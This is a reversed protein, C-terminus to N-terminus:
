TLAGKCREYLELDILEQVLDEQSPDALTQRVADVLFEAFKARAFHLRNRVWDAKVPKGLIETLLKALQTSDAQSHDMRCRLITYLPLNKPQAEWSELASWARALLEAKWLDAFEREADACNADLLTAAQEPTLPKEKCHRKSSRYHERVLNFLVRKLYHRFRGRDPDVAAFDGRVFRLAFEQCLEKATEENKVAALLYRYVAASYRELITKQAQRVIDDVEGHAQRLVTWLTTISSLHQQPDATM